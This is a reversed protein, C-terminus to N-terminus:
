ISTAPCKESEAYTRAVAAIIASREKTDYWPDIFFADTCVAQSSASSSASIVVRAVVRAVVRVVVRVIIRCGIRSSIVRFRQRKLSIKTTALGDVLSAIYADM